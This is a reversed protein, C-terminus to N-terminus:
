HLDINLNVWSYFLLLSAPSLELMEYLLIEVMIINLAAKCVPFIKLAFNPGQVGCQTWIQLTVLALFLLCPELPLEGGSSFSPQGAVCPQMPMGPSTWSKGTSLLSLQGCASKRSSCWSFYLLTSVCMLLCVDVTSSITWSEIWLGCFQELWLTGQPIMCVYECMCVCM